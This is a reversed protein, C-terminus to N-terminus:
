RLAEIQLVLDETQPGMVVQVSDGVTIVDFAGAARLAESDVASDDVVDLRIRTICAELSSINTWGGLADLIQQAQSM